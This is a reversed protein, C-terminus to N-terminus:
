AQLPPVVAGLKAAKTAARKAISEIDEVTDNLAGITKDAHDRAESPDLEKLKDILKEELQDYEGAPTQQGRGSGGGGGSGGGDSPSTLLRQASLDALTASKATLQAEIKARDKAMKMYRRATRFSLGCHDKLWPEFNGHRVRSKAENLLDGVDMAHTVSSRFSTLMMSIKDKISKALEEESLKSIPQPVTAAVTTSTTM